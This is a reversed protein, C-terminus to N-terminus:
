RNGQTHGFLRIKFSIIYILCDEIYPRLTEYHVKSRQRPYVFM